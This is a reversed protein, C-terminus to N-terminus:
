HYQHSVISDIVKWALFNVIMLISLSIVHDIYKYGLISNMNMHYRICEQIIKYCFFDIALKFCIFIVNM